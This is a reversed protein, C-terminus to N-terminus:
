IINKYEQIRLFILINNKQRSILLLSMILCLLTIKKVKLVELLDVVEWFCIIPTGLGSTAVPLLVSCTIKLNTDAMEFM